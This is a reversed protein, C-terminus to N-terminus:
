DETDRRFRLDARVEEPTARRRFLSKGLWLGGICVAAGAMVGPWSGLVVFIGFGGILFALQVLFRLSAASLRRKAM